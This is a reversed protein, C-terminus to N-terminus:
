GRRDFLWSVVANCTSACEDYHFELRDRVDPKSAMCCVLCNTRIEQESPSEHENAVVSMSIGLAAAAFVISRITTNM